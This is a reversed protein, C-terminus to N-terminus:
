VPPTRCMQPSARQYTTRRPDKSGVQQQLARGSLSPLIDKPGANQFATTIRAKWRLGVVAPGWDQCSGQPGTRLWCQAVMARGGAM